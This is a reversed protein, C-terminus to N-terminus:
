HIFKIYCGVTSFLTTGMNDAFNGNKLINLAHDVDLATLVNSLSLGLQTATIAVNPQMGAIVTQGGMLKFMNATEVITRAFFSDLTKVTSIDLILGKAEHREMTKLVKEQLNTITEDDPDAPVTVLLVDYVRIISIEQIAM